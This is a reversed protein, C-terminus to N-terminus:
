PNSLNWVRVTRDAGVSALRTGQSLFTVGQVWAKHDELAKFAAGNAPNWLRISGDKSSSVLLSGTPHFALGTISSTHQGKITRILKGDAVSVMDIEGNARGIAILKGEYDFAVESVPVIEPPEKPKQAPPAPIERIKNGSNVDWVLGHGEYSGSALFKSDESFTLCTVWDGHGKLERAPKGSAVDWIQIVPDDGASALLKGDPSMALARVITKTDLTHAIKSEDLSWLLIKKDAGASALIPGGNWALDTVTGQHGSLVNATANGSRIGLLVDKSWLQITNHDCAAAVLGADDRAVIAFGPGDLGNFTQELRAAGPNIPPLKKPDEKPQATATSHLAFTALLVLITPRFRSTFIM